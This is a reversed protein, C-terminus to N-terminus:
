HIGQVQLWHIITAALARPQELPIMHGSDDIIELSANPIADVLEQAEQLSRLADDTSAVVLTPCRISETPVGSRDLASQTALAHYGLRNGMHKIRAILDADAARRPHLSNAITSNSLGKFRAASLANVAQQKLKMQQPTDERLSSAVIALAEVREPFDAALQRAVYGGLSFGILLFRQPSREAIHRAIGAISQAGTLAGTYVAWDEPLESSFEDWLTEDLMFGPILVVSCPRSNM